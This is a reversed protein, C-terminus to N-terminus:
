RNRGSLPRLGLFTLLWQGYRYDLEEESPERGRATLAAKLANREEEPGTPKAGLYVQMARNYIDTASESDPVTGYYQRYQDILVAQDDSQVEDWGNAAVFTAPDEAQAALGQGGTFPLWGSAKDQILLKDVIDQMQVADVPKDQSAALSAIREDLKRGIEAIRPDNEKWGNLRQTDNIIDARTRMGAYIANDAKNGDQRGIAARRWEILQNFQADALKARYETYLDSSLLQQDNMLSAQSWVAWDTQVGAPKDREREYAKLTNFFSPDLRSREQPTLDDTSGQIVKNWAAQKAQSEAAKVAQEQLNSQRQIESLVLSRVGPDTIAMAQEIYLNTAPMQPGTYLSGPAGPAQGTGGAGGFNATYSPAPLGDVKGVPVKMAQRAWAPMPGWTRENGMDVHLHGGPGYFGVGRFGVQRLTSLLSAKQVDNMGQIQIDFATGHIHQSNEVHPNDKPDSTGRRKGATMTSNNIENIKIKVGPFQAMFRTAAEDLSLAATTNVWRGGETPALIDEPRFNKLQWNDPTMRSVTQGAQGKGGSYSGLIKSVYAESENKIGPFGPVNYDRQGPSRGVNHRLFAEGNDPGGNYAVLAAEIDGNFRDLNEQLYAKGLTENLQPNSKLEAILDDNSMSYVESMGLKRAMARATSPLIQALGVAGKNSVAQPNNSSETFTLASWLDATVQGGQGMIRATHEKARQMDIAPNLFKTAEVHDSGTIEDKHAQYYRLGADPDEVAWRSIVALHVQSVAQSEALATSAPDAHISNARILKRSSDIARQIEKDNNYYTYADQVSQLLTAKETNAKYTQMQSLEHRSAQDKSTEAERSWMKDWAERTEPDTIKELYRKRIAETTQTATHLAGQAAAGTTAMIGIEPDFMQVRNEDKAQNLLDQVNNTKKEDEYSKLVAAFGQGTVGLQHLARGIGAGMDNPDYRTTLYGPTQGSAEVTREALPLREAM